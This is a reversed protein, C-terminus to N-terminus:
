VPVYGGKEFWEVYDKVGKSLDYKPEYGIEKRALEIGYSAM